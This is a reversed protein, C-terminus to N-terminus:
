FYETEQDPETDAGIRLLRLLRREFPTPVPMGFAEETKLQTRRPEPIGFENVLMAATMGILIDAYQDPVVDDGAWWCLDHESLEYVLSTYASDVLEGDEASLSGAAPVIGLRQGVRLKFTAADM